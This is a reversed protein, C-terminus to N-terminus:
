YCDTKIQHNDQFASLPQNLETSTMDNIVALVGNQMAISGCIMITGGTKLVRVIIDQQESILNQVYKKQNEEQSFSVYFGSLSNSYFAKDILPAYMKLSAKTRGGWFLHKKAPRKNDNIMGLFPAIGTGNSIMVVEKAKKPIYFESNPKIEATVMDNIKLNNFGNSIKGFEHKKISLLVNNDLKAISYLREVTDNKLYISLLDGSQFKIKKSPKLHLLFSQDQNIPTRKVLQFTTQKKPNIRSIPAEINLTLGQSDSWKKAWSNFDTYSQNNIKQLPVTPTFNENVQLM